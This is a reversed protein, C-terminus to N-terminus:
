PSYAATIKEEAAAHVMYKISKREDLLFRIHTASIDLFPAEYFIFKGAKPGKFSETGRRGYVHFGVLQLLTDIDKWDNLMPLNDSGLILSFETGPETKQLHQITQITFSPRQLGFEVDSASFGPNDEVSLRLIEMRLNEDALDETKKFPNQPSLVFRIEDLGGFNLIHQAVLLHGTHLPNFSGFFLGCKM